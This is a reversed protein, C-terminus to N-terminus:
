SSPNLENNIAELWLTVGFAGADVEKSLSSGVSGARGTASKMYQTKQCGEIGSAFAASFAKAPGIKEIVKMYTECAPELADLLTRDGIRAASYKKILNIGALWAQGWTVPTITPHKSFEASAGMSFLGYIAGSTGGMTEEAIEGLSYMMQSPQSFRLTKEKIGKIIERALKSLTTGCDGDGCGSDLHNLLEEKELVRRAGEVLCKKVIDAENDKLVGGSLSISQPSTRKKNLSPIATPRSLVTGPWAPAATPDDLARLFLQKNQEDTLKLLCIQIGAMNLSTFLPGVYLRHLIVQRKALRRQLEGAIIWQELQSLSGLNNVIAVVEDNGGVNLHDILPDVLIRVTENATKLKIRKVGGEGHVGVGLEMEDPELSFLLGSGPVSCPEVCLGFSALNEKLSEMVGKINEMTQGEKALFGAIKIAFILGCMGRRKADSTVGLTTLAIDEGIVVSDVQIGEDKAAEIALGFNLRDGIYNPIIVFVEKNSEALKQIARLIQRKPPSTFVSGSISGTLMGEGVYGSPFPEHGSGGGSLIAVTRAENPIKNLILAEGDHFSLSPFSRSFGYLCERMCASPANILKKTSM